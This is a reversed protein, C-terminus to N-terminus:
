APAHYTFDPHPCTPDLKTLVGKCVKKRAKQYPSFLLSRNKGSLSNPLRQFAFLKCALNSPSRKITVQYLSNPWFRILVNKEPFAEMITPYQHLILGNHVTIRFNM